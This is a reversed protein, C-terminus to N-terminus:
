LIRIIKGKTEHLDDGYDCGHLVLLPFSSPVM